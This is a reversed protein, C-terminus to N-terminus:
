NAISDTEVSRWDNVYFGVGEYKYVDSLKFFPFFIEGSDATFFHSDKSPLYFRYVPFGGQIGLIVSSGLEAARDSVRYAIGEFVYDGGRTAIVDAKEQESMTYFHVGTNKNYFRYLPFTNPNVVGSVGSDGWPVHYAIGDYHYIHQMNKYVNIFEADDASYFHVGALVNFFRYVPQEFIVSRELSFNQTTVAGATVALPGASAIGHHIDGATVTIEASVPTAISYTGDFGCKIFVTAGGNVQYFVPSFPIPVGTSSDMVTGNVGQAITPAAMAVAPMFALAVVLVALVGTLRLRVKM